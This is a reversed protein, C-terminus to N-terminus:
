PSAIPFTPMAVGHEAITVQRTEGELVTIELLLYQEPRYPLHEAWEIAMIGPEVEVGDWYIEPHLAAVDSPELRYLDLHYLPLRGNNYENVLTFTPSDIADQIGLGQGIGQVLSTKGSGLDGCLLVVTGANLTKGLQIGFTLTATLTPLTIVTM